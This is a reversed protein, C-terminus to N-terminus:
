NFHITKIRATDGVTIFQEPHLDLILAVSTETTAAVIVLTASAQGNKEVTCVVGPRLNQRYGGNLRILDTTLGSIIEAVQASPTSAASPLAFFHTTDRHSLTRPITVARTDRELFAPREHRASESSPPNASHATVASLPTAMAMVATICVATALHRQCQRTPSIM